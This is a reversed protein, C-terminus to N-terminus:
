LTIDEVVEVLNLDPLTLVVFSPTGLRQWLEYPEVGCRRAVFLSLVTGHTVVATTVGPRRDLTPLLANAFRAHAEDASEQGFIRRDPHTYFTAVGRQIEEFPPFGVGTRDNEHLGPLVEPVPGLREGALDATEMAKVETSCLLREPQYLALREALAKCSERGEASLHWRNPPTTPVLEPMSHKILILVPAM